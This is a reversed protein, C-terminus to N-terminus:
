DMQDIFSHIILRGGFEHRGGLEMQSGDGSWKFPEVYRFEVVSSWQDGGNVM